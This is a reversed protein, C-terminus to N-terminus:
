SWTVAGAVRVTISAGLSSDVDEANVGDYQKVWGPFTVKNTATTNFTAQWNKIAPTDKLGRVFVHVADTPDALLEFTVERNDPITPANTRVTSTLVTTDREGVEGGGASNISSVLNILTYTGSDTEDVGLTTGQAPWSQTAM